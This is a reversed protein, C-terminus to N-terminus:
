KFIKRSLWILVCSGFVAVVIGGILGKSGLGIIGLLVSGVVGGVLGIIINRLWSGSSGMIQGALWGSLAGCLITVIFHWM